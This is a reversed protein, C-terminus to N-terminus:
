STIVTDIPYTIDYEALFRQLETADTINTVGDHNVDAAYLYIGELYNLDAVHQQIATVDNITIAEDGDADGLKVEDLLKYRINKDKAYQYAYSGYYVNFCVFNSNLFATDSIYNVSTPFYVEDLYGCNAFALNEISEVNPPLYVKSLSSCRNFCQQPITQVSSNIVAETLSTCKEFAGLGITRVSNPLTLTGSLNTCSAFAKLGIKDLKRCQSFDISTITENGEFAYEYVSSVYRTRYMDPVVLTPTSEDYSYLSVYDEDIDAFSYIGDTYVTVAGASAVSVANLVSLCLILSIISLVTKKM